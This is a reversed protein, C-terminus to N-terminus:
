YDNLRRSRSTTATAVYIVTGQSPFFRPLLRRGITDGVDITRVYSDTLGEDRLIFHIADHAARGSVSELASRVRRAIEIDQRPRAGAARELATLAISLANWDPEGHVRLRKIAHLAVYEPSNKSLARLEERAIHM